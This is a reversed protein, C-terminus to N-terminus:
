TDPEALRRTHVDRSRHPPIARIRRPGPRDQDSAGEAEPRVRAPLMLAGRDGAAGDPDDYLPLILQCTPCDAYQQSLRLVNPDRQGRGGPQDVM